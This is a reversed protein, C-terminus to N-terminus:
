PSTGQEELNVAPESEVNSTEGHVLDNKHEETENKGVVDEPEKEVTSSEVGPLPDVAPEPVAEAEGQEQTEKMSVTSSQVGYLPNVVPEAHKPAAEAEDQEAVKGQELTETASTSESVLEPEKPLTEVPPVVAAPFQHEPAVPIGCQSISPQSQEAFTPPQSNLDVPQKDSEPHLAHRLQDPTPFPVERRHYMPVHPAVDSAPTIPIFRGPLFALGRLMTDSDGVKVHILYGADFKGDIVGTVVQGLMGDDVLSSSDVTQKGKMPSHSGTVTQKGKMPIDSGTVTQKGKMPSDSGTVTQSGLAIERRVLSGSVLGEERRQEDKRPRGRKRKPPPTDEPPLPNKRKLDEPNM